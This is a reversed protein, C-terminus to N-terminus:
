IFSMVGLCVVRGATKLFIGAQCSAARGRSPAPIAAAAPLASSLCWFFGTMFLKLEAFLVSTQVNLASVELHKLYSYNVYEVHATDFVLVHRILLLGRSGRNSMWLSLFGDASM